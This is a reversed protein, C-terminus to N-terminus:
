ALVPLSTRSTPNAIRSFRTRSKRRSRETSARPVVSPAFRSCAGRSSRARSNMTCTPHQFYYSNEADRELYRGIRLALIRTLGDLEVSTPVKVWGFGLTGDPAPCVGRRAVAHSIKMRELTVARLLGLM